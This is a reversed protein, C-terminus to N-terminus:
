LPGLDVVEAEKLGEVKLRGRRSAPSGTVCLAETPLEEADKGTCLVLM